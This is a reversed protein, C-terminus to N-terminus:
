AEREFLPRVGESLAVLKNTEEQTIDTYNLGIELGKRFFRIDGPPIAATTGLSLTYRMSMDAIEDDEIPVYWLRDYPRETEEAVRTHAMGKLALIGMGKKKAKEVLGPGFDGQHWCVFNLPFLVTDFDFKEIALLAAEQSHASFGLFRVKGEEKAKVFVEMAGGPGFCTEVEDLDTLAHLQYLDLYDTKLKELSEHLEKEAGEKERKDTKCALFSDKRYPELAPGLVEEAIGYSPAVDFYNVGHDVAESVYNNADDQPVENVVIGGFGIISLKEGTQGLPRKVLQKGTPLAKKCANLYPYISVASGAMLSKRIFKRRKM